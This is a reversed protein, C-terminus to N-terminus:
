LYQYIAKGVGDKENSEIITGAIMKIEEMANVPAFSNPFETFLSYDNLGDGFVMVEEKRIGREKVFETLAIGKQAHIDNIEINVPYSSSAILGGLQNIKKKTEEILSIDQHFVIIKSIEIGKQWLDELSDEYKLNQYFISEFMLTELEQETAKPRLCRMRGIMSEKAQEKTYISYFGDSDMIEPYFGQKELLPILMRGKEHSIPIKKLIKGERDRFEAGNMLMCSCTIEYKQLMPQITTYNRGTAIMFEIGKSQAYDIASRNFETIEQRNNLFTGDMDSVILKIM